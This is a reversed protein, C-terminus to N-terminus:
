EATSQPADEPGKSAVYWFIAPGAPMACGELEYAMEPELTDPKKQMGQRSTWAILLGFVALLVLADGRSVQNDWLQFVRLATVATLIPLERRLVQSHVAIPNILATLGLILAINTINSGYNNGLAIGPNGQSASTASVMM